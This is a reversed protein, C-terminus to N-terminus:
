ATLSSQGEDPIDEYVDFSKRNALEMLKAKEVQARHDSEPASSLLDAEELPKWEQIEKYFLNGEAPMRRPGRSVVVSEIWSDSGNLRYVIKQNNRPLELKKQVNPQRHETDASQPPQKMDMAVVDNFETALPLSVVPRTPTRQFRKCTDCRESVQAVHELISDDNVGADKLLSKLRAVSPHGFQKHLKKVIKIGEEKPGDDNSVLVDFTPRM